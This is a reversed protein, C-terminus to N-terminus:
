ECTPEPPTGAVREAFWSGVDAAGAGLVTLHDATAYREYVVDVGAACLEEVFRETLAPLVIRDEGGQAVLVPGQVDDPDITNEQVMDEWEEIDGPQAAILRGGDAASAEAFIEGACLDGDAREALDLGDPGLVDDADLDPYAASWGAAVMVGFGRAIPLSFMAPIVLVLDAVPAIAVTGLLDLEPAWERALASTALAAHGGQSHGAVLLGDGTESVLQTAARAADLVSRAESTSVLYPHVGDGGLGEYDTAAVVFGADLHTQLGPITGAGESSPACGDAIGTTGHAWSLLLYGGSPPPSSPRAVLGTVEVAEGQVSTSWYRVRWVTGDIDADLEEASILGGPGDRAQVAPDSGSSGSCAAFVVMAVLAGIRRANM